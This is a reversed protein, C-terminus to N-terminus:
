MAGAVRNTRIVNLDPREDPQRRHGSRRQPDDVSPHLMEPRRSQPKGPQPDLAFDVAGIEDHRVLLRSLDLAIEAAVHGLELILRPRRKGRIEHRDRDDCRRLAAPQDQHVLLHELRSHEEDVLQDPHTRADDQAIRM